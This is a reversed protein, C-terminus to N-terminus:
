LQYQVRVHSTRARTGSNFRSVYQLESVSEDVWDLANLKFRLWWAPLFVAYLPVLELLNTTGRKTLGKYVGM